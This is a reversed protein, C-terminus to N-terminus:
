EWGGSSRVGEAADRLVEAMQGAQHRRSLTAAAEPSAGARPQGSVWSELHEKLYVEIGAEDDWDFLAGAGTQALVAAADGEAPGIGLVPRGSAVYEFLKGTVIAEAGPARNIPLLLLSARGMEAVAEAHPVYARREVIGTLGHADLSADVLSDVNGVFRIRLEPIGPTARLRDLVRWLAEPNQQGLFNGVFSLTFPGGRAVRPPAAVFDAPDFGNHIITADRGVKAGLLRGLSPSVAVLRTARGLVRRELALDLRRALGSRPLERLYYVDTWPDRFDAVWPLGTRELALGVLHLSMPPATTLVVNFPQEAHLRRAERLAFPVWGVRADPLFVNARLWRALREKRGVEGARAFGVGVAEGKARGTLRAYAAYPDWARTRVVRVMAPVDALMSPDPDPYAAHEPAVTLVTVDCGFEPLYRSMKLPRQVGSGGSPPYYYTVLLM